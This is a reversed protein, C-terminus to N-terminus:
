PRADPGGLALVLFVQPRGDANPWRDREAAGVAAAVRLSAENEADILFTAEEFREEAALERLLLRMASSAYGRGRHATFVHYGINCQNPTLWAHADHDDHDVWGVTEGDVEIVATPQPDDSGAGM